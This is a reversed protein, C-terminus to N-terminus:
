VKYRIEVPVVKVDFDKASEKTLFVSLRQHHSSNNPQYIWCLEGDYLRAWAKVVKTKPKRIKNMARVEDIGKLLKKFDKKKM